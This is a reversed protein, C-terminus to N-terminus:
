PEQSLRTSHKKELSARETRRWMRTADFCSSVGNSLQNGGPFNATLKKPLDFPLPTDDTM